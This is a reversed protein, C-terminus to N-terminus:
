KIRRKVTYIIINNIKKRKSTNDFLWWQKQLFICYAFPKIPNITYDDMYITRERILCLGEDVEIEPIHFLNKEVAILVNSKQNLLTIIKEFTRAEDYIFLPTYIKAYFMEDTFVNRKGLREDCM